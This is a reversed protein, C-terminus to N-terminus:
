RPAETRLKVMWLATAPTAGTGAPGADASGWWSTAAHASRLKGRGAAACPYCQRADSM